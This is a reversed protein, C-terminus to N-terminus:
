YLPPIISKCLLPGKYQRMANDGMKEQMLAACADWSLGSKNIDGAVRNPSKRMITRWFFAEEEETWQKGVM